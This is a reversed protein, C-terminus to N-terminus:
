RYINPYDEGRYKKACEAHQMVWKSGYPLKPFKGKERREFHGQRPEVVGGCRYCTGKFTNRM